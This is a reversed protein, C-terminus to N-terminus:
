LRQAVIRALRELGDLSTLPSESDPQTTHLQVSKDGKVFLITSGIGGVNVEARASADGVPDEMVELKPISFRLKDFQDKVSATYTPDSVTVTIAKMGDPTQFSLGFFGDMDLNSARAKDASALQKKYDYLQTMLPVVTTLVKEVDGITLLRRISNETLSTATDTTPAPSLTAIPILTPDPKEGICASATIAAITLGLLLILWKKM